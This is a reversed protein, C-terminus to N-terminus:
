PKPSPPECKAPKYPEGVDLAKILLEIRRINAYTDIMIISNGCVEAAFQGYTPVLPRLIPILSPASLKTVPIVASVYQYDPVSDKGSLTPIAMARINSNPVVLVFGGSEVAAYGYVYLITLLESYSIRNLDEGALQVKANVRPDLVYKKGTKRAVSDIIKTIPIGASQDANPESASETPKPSAPTQCFASSSFELAFLTLCVLTLHKM